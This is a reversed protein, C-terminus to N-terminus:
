KEPEINYKILRNNIESLSEKYRLQIRKESIQDALEKVVSDEVIFTFEGCVLEYHYEEHVITVDYTVKPRTLWKHIYGEVKIVERVQSKNNGKLVHRIELHPEKGFGITILNRDGQKHHGITEVVYRKDKTDIVQGKYEVKEVYSIRPRTHRLNIGRYHNDIYTHTYMTEDNICAKVLQLLKEKM